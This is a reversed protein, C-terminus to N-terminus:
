QYPPMGDGGLEVVITEFPGPSPLMCRLIGGAQSFNLEMRSCPAQVKSVPTNCSLTISIDRIPLPELFASGNQGSHNVLSILQWKGDKRIQSCIEV